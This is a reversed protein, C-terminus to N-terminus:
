TSRAVARTEEAAATLGLREFRELAQALLQEDGRVVGLARLAYPELCTGPRLLPEAEAELREAHGLAALADLRAPAGVLSFWGTGIRLAEPSAALLREVEDLEDLELSLRLRGTNLIDDYGTM